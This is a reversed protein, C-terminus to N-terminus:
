RPVQLDIRVIVREGCRIGLRENRRSVVILRGFYQLAVRYQTRVIMVQPGHKCLRLTLRSINALHM